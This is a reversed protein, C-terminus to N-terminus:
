LARQSLISSGQPAGSDKLKFKFQVCVCSGGLSEGAARSLIFCRVEIGNDRSGSGVQSRRSDRLRDGYGSGISNGAEFSGSCGFGRCMEPSYNLRSVRRHIALEKVDADDLEDQYRRYVERAKPEIRILDELGRAQAM